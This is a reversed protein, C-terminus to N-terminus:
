MMLASPPAHYPYQRVAEVRNAIQVMYPVEDPASLWDNRITADTEVFQQNLFPLQEFYRAQTYPFFSLNNPNAIEGHIENSRYRLEDLRNQYGFLGNNEAGDLDRPDYFIEANTIPQMGLLAREPLPLDDQTQYLHEKNWGQCYYTDPMISMIIMCVGFDDAKFRGVHGSSSSIGQGGITGLTGTEAPATQLVQQFVIPQYTGGLYTPMHQSAHKPREGFFSEVFQLYTGDTRALKESILTNTWLLKLQPQTLTITGIYSRLSADDVKMAAATTGITSSYTELSPLTGRVFSESSLASPVFSALGGAAAPITNLLSNQKIALGGAVSDYEFLINNAPNISALTGANFRTEVIKTDKDNARRPVIRVDNSGGISLGMSPVEGRMPWPLATTFYDDTWNRYRLKGFALKNLPEDSLGSSGDLTLNQPSKGQILLDMDTEPLFVQGLESDINLNKNLYYDRYIRQYALFPLAPLSVRINEDGNRYSYDSFNFGLYDALSGRALMPNFKGDVALPATVRPLLAEFNGTFGKRAMPEFYYWLQTYDVKYLHFFVRQRSALPVVPPNVVRILSELSINFEDGPYYYSFYVPILQGQKATLTNIYSLDFLSVRQTPRIMKDGFSYNSGSDRVGTMSAM